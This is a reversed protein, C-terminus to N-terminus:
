CRGGLVVWSYNLYIVGIFFCFFSFFLFFRVMYTDDYGEDSDPLGTAPDCDKVM